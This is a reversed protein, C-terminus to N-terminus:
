FKTAMHRPSSKAESCHTCSSMRAYYSRIKSFIHFLKCVYRASKCEVYPYKCNQYAINLQLNQTKQPTLVEAWAELKPKVWAPVIFRHESDRIIVVVHEAQLPVPAYLLNRKLFASPTRVFRQMMVTQGLLVFSKIQM